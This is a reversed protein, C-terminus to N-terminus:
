ECLGGWEGSFLFRPYSYIFISKNKMQAVIKGGEFELIFNEGVNIFGSTVNLTGVDTKLVKSITEHRVIRKFKRLLYVLSNYESMTISDGIAKVM